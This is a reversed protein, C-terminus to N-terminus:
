GSQVTRAARLLAPHRKPSPLLRYILGSFFTAYVIPFLTDLTLVSTVYPQLSGRAHAAQLASEATERGKLPDFASPPFKLFLLIFGVSALFTVLLVPCRSAFGLYRSIM